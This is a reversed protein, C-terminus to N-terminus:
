SHLINEGFLQNRIMKVIGIGVVTKEPDNYLKQYGKKCKGGIDVCIKVKDGICTGLLNYFAHLITIIAFIQIILLLISCLKGTMMGIIGPAYINAGRLVAAGCNVDIIVEKNVDTVNLETACQHHIIIVEEM